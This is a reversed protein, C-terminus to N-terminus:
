PPTPRDFVQIEKWAVWSPSALTEVRLFQIGELPQPPRFVLWDGDATARSFEHVVNRQAGGPGGVRLRHTTPGAPSQAVLLRIEGIRQPGGLDVEIWQPADSGSVWATSQDGDV